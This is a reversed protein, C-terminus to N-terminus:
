SAERLFKPAELDANDIVINAREQPNCLALYIRQGELYRRNEPAHPDPNSGDRVAMRRYSVSFPVDLFVSMDWSGALEDRHLFIGDLVLISQEALKGSSATMQQDLRHNFHATEVVQAGARFPWLLNQNLKDYDFSDLFYGQPSHKGRRYRFQRPHHFGDISARVANREFAIITAALEDAFTTKGSGDVGDIAVVVRDHDFALCTRALRQLLSSRISVQM